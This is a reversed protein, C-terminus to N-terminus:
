CTGDIIIDQIYNISLEYSQLGKINNHIIDSWSIIM